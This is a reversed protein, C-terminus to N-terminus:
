LLFSNIESVSWRKYKTVGILSGSYPPIIIVVLLTENYKEIAIKLIFAEFNTAAVSWSIFTTFIYRCSTEILTRGEPLPGRNIGMLLLLLLINIYM